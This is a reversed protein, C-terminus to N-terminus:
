SLRGWIKAFTEPTMQLYSAVSYQPVHQLLYQIEHSEKYHMVRGKVTNSRMRYHREEIEIIYKAMVHYFLTTFEPYHKTLYEFDERTMCLTSTPRMAKINWLAKSRGLFGHFLLCFDGKDMFKLIHEKGEKIYCCACFGQIILYLNNCDLNASVLLDKKNFNQVSAHEFIVECLEDSVPYYQKLYTCMENYVGDYLSMTKRM